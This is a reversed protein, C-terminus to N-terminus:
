PGYSAMHMRLNKLDNPTLSGTEKVLKAIWLVRRFNRDPYQSRLQQSILDDETKGAFRSKDLNDIPVILSSLTPHKGKELKFGLPDICYELFVKEYFDEFLISLNYVEFHFAYLYAIILFARFRHDQSPEESLFQIIHPRTSYSIIVNAWIKISRPFPPLVEYDEIITLLKDLHSEIAGMRGILLFELYEKRQIIDPLPLHYVDQCIKELYLRSINKLHSTKDTEDSFQKEHYQMLIHEVQELDMGLVFVCNNLNLYVKISELIRFATDPVCRDLDDIFIIAKRKPRNIKGALVLKLSLLQDVAEQLLRKEMVADLPESMREKHLAHLNDQINGMLNGVGFDSGFIKFKLSISQLLSTSAVLADEKVRNWTKYQWSLQDRIEKLLAALINPEHQYQWAEFWVPRIDDADYNYQEKFAKKFANRKLEPKPQFVHIGGLDTYMQAM